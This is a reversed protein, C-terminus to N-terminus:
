DGLQSPMGRGEIPDSVVSSSGGGCASLSFSVLLILIIKKTM